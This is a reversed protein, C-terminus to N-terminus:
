QPHFDDLPLLPLQTPYILIGLFSDALSQLRYHDFSVTRLALERGEM